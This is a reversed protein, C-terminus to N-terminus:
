FNWSVGAVREQETDGSEGLGIKISARADPGEAPGTDPPPLTAKGDSTRGDQVRYSGATVIRETGRVFLFRLDTGGPLDTLLASGSEIRASRVMRWGPEFLQNAAQRFRDGDERGYGGEQDIARQNEDRMPRATGSGSARQDVEADAYGLARAKERAAEAGSLAREKAARQADKITTPEGKGQGNARGELVMQAMRSDYVYASVQRPHEAEPGTFRVRLSASAPVTVMAQDPGGHTLESGKPQTWRPDGPRGVSVRWEGADPLTAQFRGGAELTATIAGNSSKMPERPANPDRRMDKSQPHTVGKPLFFVPVRTIAAGNTDVVTGRVKIQNGLRVAIRKVEGPGLVAERRWVPEGEAEVVLEWTGSPISEWKTRGTATREDTRHTATIRAEPVLQGVFNMPIIELSRAPEDQGLRDTSTTSAVAALESQDTSSEEAVMPAPRQGPDVMTRGSSEDPNSPGTDLALYALGGAAVVFLLLLPLARNM